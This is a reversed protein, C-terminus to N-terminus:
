MYMITLWIALVAQSLMLLPVGCRFQWHRTKHRFRRMGLWVGLSGGIGALFLLTREPVRRGKVRSRHKDLGMMGYGLLSVAAVYALIWGWLRVDAGIGMVSEAVVM